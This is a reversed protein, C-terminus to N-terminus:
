GGAGLAQELEYRKTAAQFDGGAELSVGEGFRILLQQERGPFQYLVGNVHLENNGADRESVLYREDGASLLVEESPPRMSDSTGIRWGKWDISVSRGAPDVRFVTLNGLGFTHGEDLTGTWRWNPETPEEELVCTWALVVVLLLLLKM